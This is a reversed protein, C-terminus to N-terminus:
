VYTDLVKKSGRPYGRAGLEQDLICTEQPTQTMNTLDMGPGSWPMESSVAQISAM